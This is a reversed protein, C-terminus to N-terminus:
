LHAGGGKNHSNKVRPSITKKEGQPYYLVVGIQAHRGEEDITTVEQSARVVKRQSVRSLHTRLGGM